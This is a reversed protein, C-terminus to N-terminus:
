FPHTHPPLPPPVFAACSWRSADNLLLGMHYYPRLFREVQFCGLHSLYSDPLVGNALWGGAGTLELGSLDIHFVVAGEMQFLEFGIICILPGMLTARLFGFVVKEGGGGRSREESNNESSVCQM